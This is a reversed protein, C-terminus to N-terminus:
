RWQMQADIIEKFLKKEYVLQVFKNLGQWSTVHM